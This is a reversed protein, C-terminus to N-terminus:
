AHGQNSKHESVQFVLPIVQQVDKPTMGDDQLMGSRVVQALGVLGANQHQGWRVTSAYTYPM